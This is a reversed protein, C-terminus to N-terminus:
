ISILRHVQLPRYQLFASFDDNKVLHLTNKSNYDGNCKEQFVLLFQKQTIGFASSNNLLSLATPHRLLIYSLKM